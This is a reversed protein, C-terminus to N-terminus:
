AMSAPRSDVSNHFLERYDRRILGAVGHFKRGGVTALPLTYMPVRPLSVPPPVDVM